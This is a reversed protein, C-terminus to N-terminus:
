FRCGLRYHGRYRICNKKRILVDKKPLATPAVISTSMITRHRTSQAKEYGEKLKKKTAELKAQMEGISEVHLDKGVKSEKIQQTLANMFQSTCQKKSNEAREEKVEYKRKHGDLAKENILSARGTAPCKKSLPCHYPDYFIIPKSSSNKYPQQLGGNGTSKTTTNCTRIAHLKIGNPTNTTATPATDKIQVPSYMIGKWENLLRFALKRVEESHHDLRLGDVIKGMETKMLLQRSVAVGQLGKLFEMVIVESSEMIKMKKVAMELNITHM